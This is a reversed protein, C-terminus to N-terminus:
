YLNSDDEQPPPNNRIPVPAPAPQRKKDPNLLNDLKDLIERGLEILDDWITRQKKAM